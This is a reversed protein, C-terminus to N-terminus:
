LGPVGGNQEVPPETAPLEQEETLNEEAANALADFGSDSTQDDNLDEGIDANKQEQSVSDNDEEDEFPITAQAQKGEFFFKVAEEQIVEIADNLEQEFGYVEKEGDTDIADSNIAVKKGSAVTLMGKLVVLTSDKGGSFGNISIKDQQDGVYYVKALYPTLKKLSNLLDPHPQNKEETTYPRNNKLDIYELEVKGKAVKVATVYIDGNM